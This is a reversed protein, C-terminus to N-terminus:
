WIRSAIVQAQELERPVGGLAELGILADELNEPEWVPFLLAFEWAQREFRRILASGGSRSSWFTAGGAHLAFHGVEHWILLAATSEPLGCRVVVLEDNALAAPLSQPLQAFEWRLGLRSLFPAWELAPVTGYQAHWREVVGSAITSM